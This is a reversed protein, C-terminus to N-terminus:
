VNIGAKRMRPLTVEPFKSYKVLAEWSVRDAYCLADTFEHMKASYSGRKLFANIKKTAWKALMYCTDIAVLVDEYCTARNFIRLEITRSNQINVAYYRDYYAGTDMLGNGREDEKDYLHCYETNKRGSLEAFGREWLRSVAWGMLLGVANSVGNDDGCLSKRGIHVHLGANNDEDFNFGMDDARAFMYNIQNKVEDTKLDDITLPASVFEVGYDSLSGDTEFSGVLAYKNDRAYDICSRVLEDRDSETLSWHGDIEGEFGFTIKDACTNYKLKKGYHYGHVEGIINRVCNDCICKDKFLRLGLRSKEAVPRCCNECVAVSPAPAVAEDTGIYELNRAWVYYGHGNRVRGGLSHMVDHRNDFEIGADHSGLIERVTGLWGSGFRM